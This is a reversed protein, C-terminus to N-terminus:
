EERSFEALAVPAFLCHFFHVSRFHSILVLSFAFSSPSRPEAFKRRVHLEVHVHRESRSTADIDEISGTSGAACDPWAMRDPGPRLSFSPWSPM